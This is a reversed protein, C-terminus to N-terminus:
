AAQGERVGGTGSSVQLLRDAWQGAEAHRTLTTVKDLKLGALLKEAVDWRGDEVSEALTLLHALGGKRQTLADILKADLPLDRTVEEMPVGFLADLKSFMGLLFLPRPDMRLQKGLALLQFFRARHLAIRLFNKTRDSKEMGMALAITMWQRFPEEGLIAVAHEVSSIKQALSFYPSNLFRLLRFSLAVDMSVIRSIRAVDFEGGAMEKMLYLRSAATPSLSHGSMIKPRSFHYGQYMDYGLAKLMEYTRADEVKEALKQGEFPRIKQTLAVIEFPELGLIDVKIIDGLRLLEDYGPRGSYDDIALTFGLDKFRRCADLVRATPKVNELVEIVTDDPNVIRSIDHDLLHETFNIFLRESKSVFPQVLALGELMVVATAADPDDIHAQEPTEGRFLLEQGYIREERDFIAQRAVFVPPCTDSGNAANAIDADTAAKTKPKTNQTM